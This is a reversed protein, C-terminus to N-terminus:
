DHSCELYICATGLSRQVDICFCPKKHPENCENHKSPFDHLHMRKSVRNKAKLMWFQLSQNNSAESSMQQTLLIMSIHLYIGSNQLIIRYTSHISLKRQSQDIASSASRAFFESM